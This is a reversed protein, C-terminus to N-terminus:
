LFPDISIDVLFLPSPPQPFLPFPIQPIVDTHRFLATQRMTRLCPMLCGEKGYSFAGKAM